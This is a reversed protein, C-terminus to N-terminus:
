NPLYFFIREQTGITVTPADWLRATKDWSATVVRQGDPSFQASSVKARHRMSGTLPVPWGLQALMGVTFVSAQRNEPNLRLAQALHALAQANKGSEGSYRALSVNGRSAIESTKKTAAVDDEARRREAEALKQAQALERQQREDEEQKLRNRHAESADLFQTETESLGGVVTTFDGRARMDLAQTLRSSPLLEDKAGDPDRKQRNKWVRADDALRNWAFIVQEGGDIWQKLREWSTFLTEHAAEVTAEAGQRGGSSVLLKQDILAQLMEQEQPSSFTAKPVRRRVPHWVKEDAGQGALDVLRLFIQRVVKQKASETKPDAGDGFSAYIEDARKQPAGRVGGLQRYTQTNLHRDALGDSREEEQWCLSLTYQLLPPPGAQGQVDKIIEEVLGQEFVVGHKAAPQEIALRLEDVQMDTVFAINKEILKAFQPFPSFRDFFDARMALVLKISGTSDQAIKVLASIFSTRLQEDSVTFIEEFQDVFILWQDGEQQLGRILRGPADPQADLLERTQAQSFGGGQLAGSLSEFPNEGPVLTFCRFKSGLLQSLRPLLGARVLSSKGSGSAGLVLLVNTNSLQALCARSSNTAASSSTETAIKSANLAAIPLPPTSPSKRSPM